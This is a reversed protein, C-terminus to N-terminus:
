RESAHTWFYGIADLDGPSHGVATLMAAVESRHQTGHNAVHLMMKFLPMRFHLEEAVYERAADADTLGDLFRQTDAEVQEWYTRVAALDPFQSPDIPLAYAEAAGMSGNWWALWRVHGHFQHLLTERISGRGATGPADLQEPTLQAATDLIRETAWHNYTYLARLADALM